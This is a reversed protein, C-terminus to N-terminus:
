AFLQQARMLRAKVAVGNPCHVQCTTCDECRVRRAERPLELFRERALPFQGYGDAYTLHRLIEAVPLGQPCQGQCSGCMRCYLPGIRELYASLAKGDEPRFPESMARVNEELEEVSTVGIISTDVGQNRLVWKLASLMAGERKLTDTLANPDKGYLRDGRRIRAFGGAMVKMAVIGLGAKRAVRIADGVDPQMTFNYAALVVDTKGRKALFPLMEPMNFHTSVGAFRIKGAKKMDAQLEFLEDTVEDPKSRSHLYWIDLYDTGLEKLSTELHALAEARTKGASKSSLIVKQRRSKLAAGVMRENNGGQYSRATDFHNIGMDAAQEIVSQDGVLMCGFAVPTIKLGTKGLKRYTLKVTEAAPAASFGASLFDRRTGSNTRM